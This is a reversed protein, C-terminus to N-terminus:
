GAAKVSRLQGAQVGIGVAALVAWAVLEVPQGLHFGEVMMMAGTVASIIILAWDFLMTILIAALIAGVVFCIAEMPQTTFGLLEGLRMGLMGGAVGGAMAVAVHQLFIALLAGLLGVVVAIVLLVTEPQGSALEQGLHAGAFFGIVGVFIWFLKRGFCLLVVGMVAQVVPTVALHHTMNM